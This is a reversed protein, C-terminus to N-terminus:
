LGEKELKQKAKITAAIRKRKEAEQKKSAKDRAAQRKKLDEKMQEQAPKEDEHLSIIKKAILRSAICSNINGTDGKKYTAFDKKFVVKM